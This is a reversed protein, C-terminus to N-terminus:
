ITTNVFEFLLGYFFIEHKLKMKRQEQKGKILSDIREFKGLIRRRKTERDIIFM